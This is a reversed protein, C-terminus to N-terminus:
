KTARSWTKQRSRPFVFTAILGALCLFNLSCPEPIATPQGLTAIFAEVSGDLREGYGAITNGNASVSNAACLLSWDSLDDGQGILLDALSHMGSDSSWRFAEIGQAGLASGVVVSGDASVGFAESFLGGGPLDGLGVMGEEQSWRFAQNWGDGVSLGVVVLGDDSVDHASSYYGGGELDGLGVMGANETWRFAETENNGVSTGVVVSGDASVGTARSSFREGPLNGLGVMGETSTWRFAEIESTGIESSGTAAGVIVSGDASVGSARIAAQGGPASAGLPVIGEGSTWRFAESVVTGSEVRDIRGVVVSGDDSVGTAEHGLHGPVHGLSVMGESRTWRFPESRDALLGRGVVVAGDASVSNARSDFIGGPLDGLGIIEAKVAPMMGLFLIVCLFVVQLVRM